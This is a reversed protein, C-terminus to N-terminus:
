TQHTALAVVPFHLLGVLKYHGDNSHQSSEREGNTLEEPNNSLSWHCNRISKQSLRDTRKASLNDLIEQLRKPVVQRDKINSNGHMM